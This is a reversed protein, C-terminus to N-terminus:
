TGEASRHRALSVVECTDRNSHLGFYLLILVTKTSLLRLGWLGIRSAMYESPSEALYFQSSAMHSPGHATRQYSAKNAFRLM